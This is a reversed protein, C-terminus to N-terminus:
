SPRIVEQASRATSPAARPAATSVPPTSPAASSTTACVPSTVSAAAAFSCSPTNRSTTVRAPSTPPSRGATRCAFVRDEPAGLEAEEPDADEGPPVRRAEAPLLGPRPVKIAQAADQPGQSHAPQHDADRTTRPREGVRATRRGPQSAAFFHVSPTGPTLGPRTRLGAEGEELRLLPRTTGRPPDPTDARPPAAARPDSAPAETTVTTTTTLPSAGLGLSAPDVGLAAAAADVSLMSEMADDHGAGGFTVAGGAGGIEGFDINKKVRTRYHDRFGTGTPVM